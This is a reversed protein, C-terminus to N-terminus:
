RIVIIKQPTMASNNFRVLYTGAVVSSIDLGELTDIAGDLVLRGDLSYLGCPTKTDADFFLRDSVPNPYLLHTENNPVIITPVWSEALRVAVSANIKGWGWSLDSSDSIIGTNDDLRASLRLINKVDVYMLVPNAQLMLAVVGAVGPSAMSTGSIRTFPYEKGNFNVSELLTYNQTTFSSVSSAVNVGPASIDPKRRGDLTPGKSTFNAQRGGVINGNQLRVESTHAAVAIVSETSAPDGLSYEDNGKEWSPLWDEFRGGWNGADNTLEVVNWYHVTGKEAFSRLAVKYASSRERVRLRMTPRNNFEFANTASINYFVTDNDIVVFTDIYSFDRITTYTPTTHVVENNNNLVLLEANFMEGPEGWMSISQGWLLPNSYSDFGIGSHMTDNAFEKKIHFTEGGNNGASTIFVIGQKSYADIAESLLGTGDMSGIHYLGWSMNVVLRMDLEDAKAKMWAFADLAGAEDLRLSVMLFNAEYAVGRYNTGAGSGGAIGAVHSGHYAYDYLGATDSQAQLIAAESNYETGYTFDDPNPGSTKFQDWAAVIRSQQLSTDYFNPHGYDFGWDTIGILVGKGTYGSKLRYSQYVSDVRMDPIARNMNPSLTKAEQISLVGNCRKILDITHQPCYVTLIQGVQSGVNIGLDELLCVDFGPIVKILLAQNQPLSSADVNTSPQALGLTYGVVFLVVLVHKFSM